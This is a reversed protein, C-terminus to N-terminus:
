MEGKCDVAFFNDLRWILVIDLIELSDYVCQDKETKIITVRGKRANQLLGKKVELKDLVCYVPESIEVFLM